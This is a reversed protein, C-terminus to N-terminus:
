LSGVLVLFSTFTRHSRHSELRDDAFFSCAYSLPFICLHVFHKVGVWLWLVM